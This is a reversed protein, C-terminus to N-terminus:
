GDTHFYSLLMSEHQASRPPGLGPASQWLIPGLWCFARAAVRGLTEPSRPSLGRSARVSEIAIQERGPDAETREAHFYHWDAVKMCVTSRSMSAASARGIPRCLPYGVPRGHAKARNAVTVPRRVTM